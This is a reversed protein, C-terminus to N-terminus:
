NTIYHAGVRIFEYQNTSIHSVPPQNTECILTWNSLNVSTELDFVINSVPMPIPYDWTETEHRIIQLPPQIISTTKSKHNVAPNITDIDNTIVAMALDSGLVLAVLIYKNLFM